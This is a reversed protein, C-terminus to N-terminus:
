GEGGARATAKARYADQIVSPKFGTAAEVLLDDIIVRIYKPTGAWPSSGKLLLLANLMGREIETYESMPLAPIAKNM